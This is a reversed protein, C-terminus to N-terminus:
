ATQQAWNCADFQMGFPGKVNQTNIGFPAIEQQIGYPSNDDFTVNTSVGPFGHVIGEIYSEIDLTDPNVNLQGSQPNMHNVLAGYTIADQLSIEKKDYM